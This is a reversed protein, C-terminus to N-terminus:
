TFSKEWTNKVRYQLLLGTSYTFDHCKSPPYKSIPSHLHLLNFLTGGLNMNGQYSLVHNYKFILEKYIYNTLYPDQSSIMSSKRHTRFEIATDKYSFPSPSKSVSVSSFTVHLSPHHVYWASPCWSGGSAPLPLLPSEGISKAPLLGRHWRSKLSRVGLVTLLDTDTKLWWKHHNTM